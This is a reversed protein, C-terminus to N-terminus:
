KPRTERLNGFRACNADRLVLYVNMEYASVYFSHRYM